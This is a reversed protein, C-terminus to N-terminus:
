RFLAAGAIVLVALVVGAVWGRHINMWWQGSWDVAEDDFRGHAGHDGAV